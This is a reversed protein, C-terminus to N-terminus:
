KDNKKDTGSNIISKFVSFMSESMGRLFDGEGKTLKDVTRLNGIGKSLAGPIAISAGNTIFKGWEGDVANLGLDITTGVTSLVSGTGILAGGVGQAGPIAMAATGAYTAGDGFIGLVHSTLEATGRIFANQAGHIEKVLPNNMTKAHDSMEGGDITVESLAAMDYFVGDQAGYKVSGKEDTALTTQGRYTLGADDAEGQTNVEPNWYVGKQPTTPDEVWGDNMGSPDIRNLPNNSCYAFPSQNTYMEALPDVSHWRGLVPDYFRAGYDLWGLGMEDQMMKGNYLYENPKYTASGNATLGKINKLRV